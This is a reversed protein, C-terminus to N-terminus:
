QKLPRVKFSISDDSRDIAGSVAKANSPKLCDEEQQSLESVTAAVAVSDKTNDKTSGKATKWNSLAALGMGGLVLWVGSAHWDGVQAIWNFLEVAVFLLIFAALWFGM